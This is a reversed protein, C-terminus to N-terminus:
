LKLCLRRIVSEKDSNIKQIFGFVAKDIEAVSKFFVNNIVSSKLWKWLGEILNLNPSYPPLFKLILDEKNEELFPKLLKAHHIKANDLIIVIRKGDYKAVLLELFVLFEQATYQKEQICFIEGSEYDLAGILKTGEHKGYTRILRQKGKPFWTAQIAQYDRIM